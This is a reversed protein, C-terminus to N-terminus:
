GMPPQAFIIGKSHCRANLCAAQGLMVYLTCLLACLQVMICFSRLIALICCRCSWEARGSRPDSSDEMRSSNSCSSTSCSHQQAKYAEQDEQRSPHVGSHRNHGVHPTINAHYIHRMM